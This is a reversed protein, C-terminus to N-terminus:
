NQSVRRSCGWSLCRHFAICTRPFSRVEPRSDSSSDSDDGEHFFYEPEGSCLATACGGVVSDDDSADETDSSTFVSSDDTSNFMEDSEGVDNLWFSGECEDDSRTGVETDTSAFMLDVRSKCPAGIRGSGFKAACTLNVVAPKPSRDLFRKMRKDKPSGGDDSDTSYKLFCL